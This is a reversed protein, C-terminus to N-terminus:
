LALSPVATKKIACDGVKGHVEVLSFHIKGAVTGLFSVPFPLTFEIIVLPGEFGAEPHNESPAHADLEGPFQSRELAHDIQNRAFGRLGGGRDPQAQAVAFERGTFDFADDAELRGGTALAHNAPHISVRALAM